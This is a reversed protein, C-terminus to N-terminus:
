IEVEALPGSEIALVFDDQASTRDEDNIDSVM